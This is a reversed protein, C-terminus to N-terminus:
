CWRPKGDAVLCRMGVMVFGWAGASGAVLSASVNVQAMLKGADNEENRIM